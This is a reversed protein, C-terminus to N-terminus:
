QTAEKVTADAEKAIDRCLDVNSPTCKTRAVTALARAQGASMGVVDIHRLLFRKLGPNKRLTPAFHMFEDWRRGFLKAVKDDVGDATEGDDCAAYHRYWDAVGNWTSIRDEANDARDGMPTPCDPNQAFAPLAVLAMLAAVLISHCLTITFGALRM